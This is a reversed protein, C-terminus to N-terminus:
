YYSVCLSSNTSFEKKVEIRIVCCYRLYSSLMMVHLRPEELQSMGAYLSTRTTTNSATYKNGAAGDREV